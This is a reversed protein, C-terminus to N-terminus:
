ITYIKKLLLKDEEKKKRKKKKKKKKVCSYSGKNSLLAGFPFIIPWFGVSVSACFAFVVGSPSIEVARLGLV